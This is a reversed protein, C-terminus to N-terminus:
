DIQQHAESELYEFENLYNIRLKDYFLSLKDSIKKDDQLKELKKFYKELDSDYILKTLKELNKKDKHFLIKNFLLLVEERMDNVDYLKTWNEGTLMSEMISYFIISIIKRLYVNILENFPDEDDAYDDDLGYLFKDNLPHFRDTEGAFYGTYNKSILTLRSEFQELIGKSIQYYKEKGRKDFEIIKKNVLNKLHYSIAPNSLGTMLKLETFRLNRHQILLKIIKDPHDTKSKM